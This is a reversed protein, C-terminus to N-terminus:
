LAFRYSFKLLFINEGPARFVDEMDDRFNFLGGTLSDDARKQTWVFYLASGPRYEWRLVFTGRLSRLNFDPNRFSFPAAPGPGDPDVRYIGNAFDITSGGHEGFIDFDFTRVARLEKFERYDGSGIYPQLYAQLSLKPTFTWNLRFEIPLTKQIISALIYRVGLTEVKLPDKIQTLYQGESHRFSYGTGLSLNINTRPKWILDADVDWNSGKNPHERYRGAFKFVLPKRNDTSIESKITAGWLYYAMPGGRTLYHSYKPPEFDLHFTATWYNLFQGEGDLNFVEGSRNWSFDYNRYYTFVANWQRFTRGPQFKRYGTQLHANFVDGRGHYGLDNSEFEPSMAGLGANFVINGKQKNVYFRGAWGSLSTATEDVHVYDADPRQFYHLSSRELRTIAAPSGEVRTGGAWGSVVWGKDRGLFTWGDVGLAHANRILTSAMAETGMDRVVSTAIFGLGRRGDGSEKLGRVIGYHTLPEIERGSRAGDIDISANERGTLASIVGINFGKGIKGSVKAAGLISTWEPSDAFGTGGASGQPSRGIRRSYFFTPDTWGYARYVNPGGTGFNFISSGEIFFPRKEKYYTEQDSINIVAPDVEVQGFEPNITADLTLNSRLGAKLDFGGIGSYDSGTRFPNGPERPSFGAKAVAYPVVELLRGPEIDRVGELDAFRSVLGKEEKPAWSFVDTENKRKIIRRFNIGWVYDSQRKFRLQDFPIRMEVTWGSEDMRGASEWIGDWTSDEGEDNFYTGDLISGAPNVAFFYGSRRDFYPDVGLFFWDSDVEDDRRGLRQIVGAPNSDLCRAAVYLNADDFAVWVITEETPSSGDIPDIQTFDRRGESKWASETLRGDIQITGDLSVAEFTKRPPSDAAAATGALLLCAAAGAIITRSM